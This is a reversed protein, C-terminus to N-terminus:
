HRPWTRSACGNFLWTCSAKLCGRSCFCPNKPGLGPGGRPRLLGNAQLQAHWTGSLFKSQDLNEVSDFGFPPCPLALAGLCLTLAVLLALGRGQSPM